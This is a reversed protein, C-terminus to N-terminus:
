KAAVNGGAPEVPTRPGFFITFVDKLAAKAGLGGRNRSRYDNQGAMKAFTLLRQLRSSKPDHLHVRRRFMRSMARYFDIVGDVPTVTTGSPSPLSRAAFDARTDTVEAQYAYAEGGSHLALHWRHATSNVHTISELNSTTASNHRRWVGLIEPVFVVTGMLTGLYFIWEDFPATGFGYASLPATEALWPTIRARRFLMQMGNPSFWPDITAFRYRGRLPMLPMVLPTPNLAEDVVRVWHAVLMVAEDTFEPLVTALKRPDWVDDQDCLAVIEGTCQGIARLFNKTYSLRQGHADVVVKFPADAAFQRAIEVTDDSSGDDCIILETPPLTQRRISDLQARLHRGGNYTAMAVSIKM